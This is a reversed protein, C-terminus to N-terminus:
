KNYVIKDHNKIIVDVISPDALTSIDGLDDSSSAAVKRLIRRMIKGSRTKPLGPTFQIMDPQAYSALRKKTMQRLESIINERSESVGDKLIVYAYIGEGKIDHPFGVVASEAVAHHDDLVDEIEGTGLRHGSVNLVDDMRGTIQYYGGPHRVAGDGTYYYGAFPQYYTEVYRQHDGYITQAMGPWPRKICLSGSANDEEIVQGASDLLVPDIGFFPRMPMAPYIPADPNSPRPAICIGGTETQWWTDIVDCRKEGIVDRYWEFAEHNLPEGVCGLKRLSSRNYKTVWSDGGKLLLRLATPAIYLHNIKLREVTEWYRGPDPYTPTSSFLVTTAGNLLPGYVVYSHGTIWGIDALCGFREEEKYDFVHKFTVAAYTLYGGHSHTIGKPKGTSGSTYLMFLSELSDMPVAESEGSSESMVKNLPIDLKNMPVQRDLLDYVFVRKVCSAKAVADDVTKKLNLLKGGRVDENATIVTEARADLIRGALAESSFGAFVVSHIAGIRTCALMAAVAIPCCPLYIAVRDGRKVGHNKLSNSLKNVLLSLDKYTIYEEQGPEDKEWILAVRNGYKDLHRDVCNVSANIKGDIFWKILGNSLDCDSVRDFDKSWTLRSRALKGWFIDPKELSLKYLDLHSNLQPSSDFEPFSTTTIASAIDSRLCRQIEGEWNGAQLIKGLKANKSWLNSLINHIRVPGAM